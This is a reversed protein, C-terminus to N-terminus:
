ESSSEAVDDELLPLYIPRYFHGPYGMTVEGALYMSRFESGQAPTLHPLYFKGETTAGHRTFAFGRTKRSAWTDGGYAKVAKRQERDLESWALWGERPDTSVGSVRLKGAAPNPLGAVYVKYSKDTPGVEAGARVAAMFDDGSMSGCYSCGSPQAVLGARTVYTDPGPQTWDEVVNGRIEARRPCTFTPTTTM